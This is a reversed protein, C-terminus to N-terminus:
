IHQTYIHTYTHIHTYIHTYTNTFTYKHTYTHAIHAYVHGNYICSYLTRNSIFVTYHRTYINMLQWVIGM